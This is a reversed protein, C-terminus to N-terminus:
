ADKDKAEEAGGQCVGDWRGQPGEGQEQGAEADDGRWSAGADAETLDELAGGAERVTSFPGGANVDGIEEKEGGEKSADVLLAWPNNSRGGEMSGAVRLAATLDLELLSVDHPARDSAAAVRAAETDIAEHLPTHPHPQSYFPWHGSLLASAALATPGNGVVCVLVSRTPTEETHADMGPALLAM